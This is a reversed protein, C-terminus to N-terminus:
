RGRDMLSAGVYLMLGLLFVWVLWLFTSWAVGNAQVEQLSTWAGLIWIACAAGELQNARQKSLRSLSFTSTAM